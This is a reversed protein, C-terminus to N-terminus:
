KSGRRAFQKRKSASTKDIMEKAVERSPGIGKKGNKNKAKEPNHVMMQMFKYQKASKAPMHGRGNNENGNVKGLITPNISEM